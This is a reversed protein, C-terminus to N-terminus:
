YSGGPWRLLDFYDHYVVGDDDPGIGLRERAEADAEAIAEPAYAIDRENLPHIGIAYM